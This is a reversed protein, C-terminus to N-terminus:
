EKIAAGSLHRRGSLKVYRAGWDADLGTCNQDGATYPYSNEFALGKRSCQDFAADPFWGNDCNRGQSRGHCYFLHAESLDIDLTPNQLAVRLTSELVAVAGFAVCSGCGGQDRIPTVYNQGSVNRLDYSSPAGVTSAAIFPEQPKGSRLALVMDELSPVGPPPVFGLRLKAEELSLKTMSTEGCTWTAGQENIKESLAALNIDLRTM